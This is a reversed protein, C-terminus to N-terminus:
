DREAECGGHRPGYGVAHQGESVQRVQRPGRPGRVEKRHDRPDVSDGDQRFQWEVPRACNRGLPAM